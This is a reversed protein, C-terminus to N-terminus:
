TTKIEYQYPFAAAELKVRITNAEAQPILERWGFCFTQKHDYFIVNNIPLDHDILWKFADYEIQANVIDKQLSALKDAKAKELRATRSKRQEDRYCDVLWAPAERRDIRDLVVPRMQLLPLEKEELNESGLCAVCWVGDKMNPTLIDKQNGCYGCIHRVRRANRTDDTPELWYGRGKGSDTWDFVRLNLDDTTNWQNSFMFKTELLITKGDLPRIVEEWHRYDIMGATKRIGLSHLDIRLKDYGNRGEATELDYNYTHLIAPITAPVPRPKGTAPVEAILGFEIVREARAALASLKRMVYPPVYWKGKRDASPRPYKHDTTSYTTASKADTVYLHNGKVELTWSTGIFEHMDKM